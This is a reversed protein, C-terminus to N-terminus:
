SILSNLRELEVNLLSLKSEQNRLMQRLNEIEKNRDDIIKRFKSFDQTYNSERFMKELKYITQKNDTVEEEKSKLLYHNRKAEM